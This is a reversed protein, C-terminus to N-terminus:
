GSTQTGCVFRCVIFLLLVVKPLHPGPRLYASAANNSCNGYKYYSHVSIWLRTSMRICTRTTAPELGMDTGDFGIATGSFGMANRHCGMCATAAWALAEAVM